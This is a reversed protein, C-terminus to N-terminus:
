SIPSYAYILATNLMALAELGDSATDPAYGLEEIIQSITERIGPDDDVILVRNYM